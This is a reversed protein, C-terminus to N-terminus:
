NVLRYLLVAAIFIIALKATAQFVKGIGVRFWYVLVATVLLLVLQFNSVLEPGGGQEPQQPPEGKERQLLDDQIQRPGQGVVPCVGSILTLSEAGDFGSAPRTVSLTREYGYWDLTLLTGKVPLRECIDLGQVYIQIDATLLEHFRRYYEHDYTNILVRNERLGTPGWQVSIPLPDIGTQTSTKVNRGNTDRELQELFSLVEKKLAPELSLQYVVELTESGSLSPVANISKVETRIGDRRLRELYYETLRYRQILSERSVLLQTHADRLDYARPNSSSIKTIDSLLTETSITAQIKCEVRSTADCGLVRYNRVSGSSYQLGIAKTVKDTDIAIESVVLVGSAQAVAATLANHVAEKESTGHGVATVSIERPTSQQVLFRVGQVIVSIATWPLGDARAPMVLLVNVSFALLLALRMIM